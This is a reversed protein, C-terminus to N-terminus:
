SSYFICSRSRGNPACSRNSGRQGAMKNCEPLSTHIGKTRRERMSWDPKWMRRRLFTLLKLVVFMQREM